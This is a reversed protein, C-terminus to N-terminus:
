APLYNTVKEVYPITTKMQVITGAPKNGAQGGGSRYLAMRINNVGGPPVLGRVGDGFRVQGTIHNLVYHRDRPGSEYFDAVEHWRVWIREHGAADKERRIAGSGEERELKAREAASPLEDEWVELAQGELVPARLTRFTQNRAGNSAGLAENAITIAQIALTTNFLVSRIEPLSPDPLTAFGRLWYRVLGFQERAAFDAPPLFRVPASRTMGETEDRVTWKWWNTGNWCEWTTPPRPLVSRTSASEGIYFYMSISRQGFGPLGGAEVEPPPRFGLHLAPDTAPRFPRFWHGLAVEETLDEYTFDNYSVVTQPSGSESLHYDITISRISPPRLTAPILVYEAPGAGTERVQYGTEHGYDGSYLRVRIWPGEIGAIMTPRAQPPVLFTVTGSRTLARTTDLFGTTAESADKDSEGVGLATWREGNWIEWAAKPKGEVNVRPLPPEPGGEAPNTLDIHLTVLAGTLSFAEGHLLFFTDGFRPREGFPFFDKTLDAPLQGALAAEPLLAARTATAGMRVRGISPLHSARLMGNRGAERGTIPTLLRCRVWSSSWGGLELSPLRPVAVFTVEGTVTLGATTDTAPTLALWADGTWVEWQLVREDPNPKTDAVQFSLRLEVLGPRDLLAAHGLYLIHEIEASGSYELVDPSAGALWTHCRDLELDRRFVSDLRAATVVLERETEFLLPEAEGKAPLAAIPAGAPVIADETVGPALQFTLPVRAPQPPLNSVSLVDLYALFNKDPAQNLREIILESFRSFIAVLAALAGTEADVAAYRPLLDKIQAAIQAANRSDVAPAPEPM